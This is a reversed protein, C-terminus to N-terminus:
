TKDGRDSLQAMRLQHNHSDFMLCLGTNILVLSATGIWFWNGGNLKQILAEGFVSLGFGVCLLGAVGKILWLQKEQQM